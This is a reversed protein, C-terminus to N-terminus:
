FAEVFIFVVTYIFEWCSVLRANKPLEDLVGFEQGYFVNGASSSIIIKLTACNTFFCYYM